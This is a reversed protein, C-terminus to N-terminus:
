IIAITYFVEKSCYVTLDQSHSCNNSEMLPCPKCSQICTKQVGGCDLSDMWIPQSSNGGPSNILLMM